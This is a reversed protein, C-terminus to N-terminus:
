KVKTFSQYHDSTYYASGDSGTVVREPGRNVGPTRPNVDWERYGIPNGNGDTEPLVQGGGRGDNQFARGGTYGPRSPANSSGGNKDVWDVADQARNPVNSAPSKREPEKPPEEEPKANTEAPAEDGAPAGGEEATNVKARLVRAVRSLLAFFAIVGLIEVARALDNAADELEAKTSATCTLLVFTGLFRGASFGAWLLLAADLVEGIGIFQCAGWVVLSGVIFKLGTPTLLASFQTRINGTLHSGTHLLVYEFREYLSWEDVSKETAPAVAARPAVGPVPGPGPGTTAIGTGSSPATPAPASSPKPKSSSDRQEAIILSFWTKRGVVGDPKLDADKQFEIVATRTKPGFVGDVKLDTDSDLRSNLLRQLRQVHQGRTGIQLQPLQATRQTRNGGLRAQPRSEGVVAVSVAGLPVHPHNQIRASTGADNIPSNTAVGLPGRGGTNSQEVM